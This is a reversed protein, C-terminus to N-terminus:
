KFSIGFSEFEPSKFIEPINDNFLDKKPHFEGNQDPIIAYNEQDLVGEKVEKLIFSYFKNLWGFKDEIISLFHVNKFSALKLLFQDIIWPHLFQWAEDVIDNNIIPTFLQPFFSLSFYVISQQKQIYQKQYKNKDDPIACLILKIKEHIIQFSKRYRSHEQIIAKVQSNIKMSIIKSDIKIPLEIATIQKNM